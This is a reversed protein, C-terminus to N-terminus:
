FGNLRLAADNSRMPHKKHKKAPKAAKAPEVVPGDAVPPMTVPLGIMRQASNFPMLWSIPHKVVDYSILAIWMALMGCVFAHWYNSKFWRALKRVALAFSTAGGLLRIGINAWFGPAAPSDAVTM